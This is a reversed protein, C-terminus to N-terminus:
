DEPEDDAVLNELAPLAALLLKVQDAPLRDLRRQLERLRTSYLGTAVREGEETPTVLSARGDNPDPTAACTAATSWAPWSGRCPRRPWM